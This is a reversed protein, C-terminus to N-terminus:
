QGPIAACFEVAVELAAELQGRRIHDRVLMSGYRWQGPDLQIARKLDRM